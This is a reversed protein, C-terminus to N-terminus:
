NTNRNKTKYKDEDIYFNGTPHIIHGNSMDENAEFGKGYLISNEETFKTFQNSYIKKKNQDWILQETNIIQGKNDIVEVNNEAIWKQESEKYIAYNSTIKSTTHNHKDLLEAVLGKPFETYPKEASQYQKLEQTTITFRVIGSDSQIITINKASLTPFTELSTIKNVEKMDNKCSLLFTIGTFVLIVKKLINLTKNSM